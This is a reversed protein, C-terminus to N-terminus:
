LDFVIAACIALWMVCAACLLLIQQRRFTTLWMEKDDLQRSGSGVFFFILPHNDRLSTLRRFWKDGNKLGDVCFAVGILAGGTVCALRLITWIMM